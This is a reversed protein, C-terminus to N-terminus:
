EEGGLDLIESNASDNIPVTYIGHSKEIFELLEEDSNYNMPIGNYQLSYYYRYIENLITKRDISENYLNADVNSLRETNLVMSTFDKYVSEAIEDTLNLRVSKVATICVNCRSKVDIEITVIGDKNDIDIRSAPVKRGNIFFFYREVDLVNIGTLTIKGSFPIISSTFIDNMMYPLYFVEVIDDEKLLMSLYIAIENYPNNDEPIVLTLYKMEIRCHNVFVMYQNLNQCYKFDEGLPLGVEEPKTIKFKKYAFRENNACMLNKGYYENDLNINYYYDIADDSYTFPIRYQMSKMAFEIDFEENDLTRDFISCSNLNYYSGLPVVDDASNTIFPIPEPKDRGIFIIEFLDDDKTNAVDIPFRYMGDETYTILDYYEYLKFNKFIIVKNYGENMDIDVWKNTELDIYGNNQIIKAEEGTLTFFPITTDIEIDGFVDTYINFNYALIRKLMEELRDQYLPMDAWDIDLDLIEKMLQYYQPASDSLDLLALEEQKQHDLKYYIHDVSRNADEYSFVIIDIKTKDMGEVFKFANGEIWEIYKSQDYQIYGDYIVIVNEPFIKHASDELQVIFGLEDNEFTDLVTMKVIDSNMNFAIDMDAYEEKYLFEGFSNFSLYSEFNSANLETVGDEFYKVKGPLTMAVVDVDDEVGSVIFYTFNYNRVVIVSDWDFPKCGVETNQFLIIPRVLKEYIAQKLTKIFMFHKHDNSKIRLPFNYCLYIRSNQEKLSYEDGKYLYKSKIYKDLPFFVPINRKYSNLIDTDTKCKVDLIFREIEPTIVIDSLSVM